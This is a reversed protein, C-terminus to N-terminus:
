RRFRHLKSAHWLALKRAEALTWTPAFTDEYDDVNVVWLSRPPKVGARQMRRRTAPTLPHRRLTVLHDHVRVTRIMIGPQRPGVEHHKAANEYFRIFDGLTVPYSFMM